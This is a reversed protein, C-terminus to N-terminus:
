MARPQPPGRKTERRLGQNAFRSCEGIEDGTAPFRPARMTPFLSSRKHSVAILRTHLVFKPRVGNKSPADRCDLIGQEKGTGAGLSGVSTHLVRSLRQYGDDIAVEWAAQSTYSKKGKRGQDPDYIRTADWYVAHTM